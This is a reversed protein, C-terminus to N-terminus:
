ARTYIPRFFCVMLLLSLKFSVFYIFPKSIDAKLGVTDDTYPIKNENVYVETFHNWCINREIVHYKKMDLM